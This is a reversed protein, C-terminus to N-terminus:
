HRDCYISSKGESLLEMCRYCFKDKYVLNKLKKQSKMAELEERAKKLGHMLKTRQVASGPRKRKQSSGLGHNTSCTRREDHWGAAASVNLLKKKSSTNLSGKRRHAHSHDQHAGRSHNLDYLSDEYHMHARCDHRVPRMRKSSSSRLPTKSNHIDSFRLFFLELVM